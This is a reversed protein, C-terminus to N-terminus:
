DGWKCHGIPAGLIPGSYNPPLVRRGLHGRMAFLVNEQRRNDHNM